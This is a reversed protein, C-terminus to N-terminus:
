ADQPTNWIAYLPDSHPNYNEPGMRIDVDLTKTDNLTETKYHRIETDIAAAQLVLTALIFYLINGIVSKVRFNWPSWPSEPYRIVKHKKM